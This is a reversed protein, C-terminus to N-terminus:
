AALLHRYYPRERDDLIRNMHALDGGPQLWADLNVPRIPIVCRDHGAAAVEPPPEDTIIAVSLLDASGSASWRSWLCAVYMEDLGEPKFQLVVDSEKEGPALDRNELRHLKVHEFFSTALMVGHSVGWQGQWYGSLSDRRANYTGPYRRDFDAPKGAPRCRYRMPVLMRRGAEWIVVPVQMGPYIRFDEEVPESRQLDALWRKITQVKGTAIRLSETAAKTPKAALKREADAIRTRQEFLEQQLSRVRDETYADILTKIRLEDPDTSEKFLLDLSKPFKITPDDSRHWYREWFERIHLTVGHEREFKKHDAVIRASYCM